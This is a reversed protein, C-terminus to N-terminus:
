LSESLAWGLVGSLVAVAIWLIVVKAMREEVDTWARRQENSEM